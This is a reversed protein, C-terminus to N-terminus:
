YEPLKHRVRALATKFDFGKFTPSEANHCHVCVAATPEILGMERAKASSIMHEIKAYDEGPGHCAECQVGDAAQFGQRFRSKPIGAGTTHCRACRGDTQPDSIGREAAIKRAAASGLTEFARAHASAKWSEVQRGTAESNHCKACGEVGIFKPAAQEPTTAPPSEGRSSDPPSSVLLLAAVIGIWVRHQRSSM